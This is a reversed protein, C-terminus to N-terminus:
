DVMAHVYVFGGVLKECFTQKEDETWTSTVRKEKYVM